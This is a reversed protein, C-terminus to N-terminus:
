RTKFTFTYSGDNSEDFVVTGSSSTNVTFSETISTVDVTVDEVGLTVDEAGLFLKNDEEETFGHELYEGIPVNSM